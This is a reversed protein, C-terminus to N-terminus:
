TCGSRGLCFIRIDLGDSAFFRQTQVNTPDFCKTWEERTWFHFQESKQLNVLNEHANFFITREFLPVYLSEHTWPVEHTRQTSLTVIDLSDRTWELVETCDSSKLANMSKQTNLLVFIFVEGREHEASRDWYKYMNTLM